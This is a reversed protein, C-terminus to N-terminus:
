VRAVFGVGAIFIATPKTQGHLTIPEKVGLNALSTAPYITVRFKLTHHVSTIPLKPM